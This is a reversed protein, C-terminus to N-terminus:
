AKPAEGTAEDLGAQARQGQQMQVAPNYIDGLALADARAKLAEVAEPSLVPGLHMFGDVAFQQWAAETVM